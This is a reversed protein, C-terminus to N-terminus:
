VEVLVPPAIEIPCIESGVPFRTNRWVQTGDHVIVPKADHERMVCADIGELDWGHQPFLCALRRDIEFSHSGVIIRKVKASVLEITSAFLDAEAGQIDCHILDVTDIDCMLTSLSFCPLQEVAKILTSQSTLSSRAITKM